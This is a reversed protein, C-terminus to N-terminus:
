RFNFLFEDEDDSSVKRVGKAICLLCCIKVSIEAYDYCLVFLQINGLPLHEM